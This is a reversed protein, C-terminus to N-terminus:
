DCGFDFPDAGFGHHKEAIAYTDEVYQTAFNAPKSRVDVKAVERPSTEDGSVSMTREVIEYRWRPETWEQKRLAVWKAAHQHSGFIAESRWKSQGRYKFRVVYVIKAKSRSTQM